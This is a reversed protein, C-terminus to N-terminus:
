LKLHLTPPVVLIKQNWDRVRTTLNFGNFTRKKQLITSEFSLRKDQMDQRPYLDDSNLDAIDFDMKQLSTNCWICPKKGNAGNSGFLACYVKM